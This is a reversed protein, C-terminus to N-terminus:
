KVMVESKIPKWEYKVVDMGDKHFQLCYINGSPDVIYGAGYGIMVVTPTKPFRVQTIFNGHSDYKYIIRDSIIYFRRKCGYSYEEKIILPKERKALGSAYINGESDVFDVNLGFKLDKYDPMEVKVSPTGIEPARQPTEKINAPFLTFSGSAEGISNYIEIKIEEARIGRPDMTYDVKYQKGKGDALLPPGTFPPIKSIEPSPARAIKKKPKYIDEYPDYDITYLFRGHSDYKNICSEKLGVSKVVYINREKDVKFRGPEKIGFLYNGNKDFVKIKDDGIYINGASDVEFDGSPGAGMEGEVDGEGIISIQNDPTNEWPGYGLTFLVRPIYIMETRELEECFGKEGELILFNLLFVLGM